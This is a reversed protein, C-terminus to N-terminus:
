DAGSTDDNYGAGESDKKYFVGHTANNKFVVKITDGVEAQLIPGVLGLHQWEPPRPKLRTFSADTYERYVAKVYLFFL